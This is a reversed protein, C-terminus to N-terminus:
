AEVTGKTVWVDDIKQAVDEAIVKDAEAEAQDETGYIKHLMPSLDDLTIWVLWVSKIASDM